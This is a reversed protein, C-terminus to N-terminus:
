KSPEKRELRGIFYDLGDCLENQQINPIERNLEALMKKLRRRDERGFIKKFKCQFSYLRTRVDSVTAISLTGDFRVLERLSVLDKRLAKQESKYNAMESEIEKRLAENKFLLTVTLGFGVIGTIDAIVALADM